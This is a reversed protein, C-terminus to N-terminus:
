PCTSFGPSGLSQATLGTNSTHYGRAKQADHSKRGFYLSLGLLQPRIRSEAIDHTGYANVRGGALAM